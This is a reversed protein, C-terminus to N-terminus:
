LPISKLFKKSITSSTTGSSRSKLMTPTLCPPSSAPLRKLNPLCTSQNAQLRSRTLPLMHMGVNSHCQGDYYLKVDKPLPEYDPPFLVGNHELTQWKEGTGDDGQLFAFRQDDDEEDDGGEAGDEEDQDKKPKKVPSAEEKKVAAAAKGKGKAPARKKPPEDDDADEDDAAQKAAKSKTGRAARKAPAKKPAARKTKGKPKDEQEFDSGNDEGSQDEAPPDAKRKKKTTKSQRKAPAKAKTSLAEEDSSESEMKVPQVKAKGNSQGPTAASAAPPHTM